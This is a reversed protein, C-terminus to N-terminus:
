DHQGHQESILEAAQQLLPLYSKIAEQRTVSSRFFFITIVGLPRRKILVPVAMSFFATGQQDVIHFGDQQIRALVKPLGVLDKQRYQAPTTRRRSPPLPPANVVAQLLMARTIQDSYALFVRGSATGPLSVRFGTPFKGDTFPTEFDTTVRTM